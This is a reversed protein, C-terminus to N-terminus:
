YLLYLVPFLILWILDCMHWFGGGAELDLENIKAKSNRLPYAVVFLLVMGVWVHILHFGTMLWYLTEFMNGGLSFEHALKGKYVLGKILTFFVGGGLTGLLLQFSKKSQGAKLYHVAKAM